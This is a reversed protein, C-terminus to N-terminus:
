FGFVGVSQASSCNLIATRIMDVELIDLPSGSSWPHFRTGLDQRPQLKDIAGKVKQCTYNTEMGGQVGLYMLSFSKALKM